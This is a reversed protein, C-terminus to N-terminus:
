RAVDSDFGLRLARMSVYKGGGFVMHDLVDIDLLKGTDVLSKTLAVDPASPTPDGSPHNHAPVIASANMRVAERFIEAMRVQTTHVSGKYLRTEGVIHNRTDLQLVWVEEQDLMCMRNLLLYAADEPSKIIRKENNVDFDVIRVGLQIAALIQAAKAEGLGHRANLDGFTVTRLGALGYHAILDEALHVASRKATGTRLLIALLEANSLADAGYDRLRERPRDASPLDRILTPATGVHTSHGNASATTPAEM